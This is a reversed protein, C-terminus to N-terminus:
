LDGAALMDGAGRGPQIQGLRRDARRHGGEFPPVRDREEVADAPPNFQGGLPAAKDGLGLRDQGPRGLGPLDELVEDLLGEPRQPDARALGHGAVPQGVAQHREVLAKRADVQM